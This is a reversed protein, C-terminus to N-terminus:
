QMHEKELVPHAALAAGRELDGLDQDIAEELVDLKVKTKLVLPDPQLYADTGAKLLLAMEVTAHEVVVPIDTSGDRPFSLPQDPDTKSGAFRPGYLRWRLPSALM